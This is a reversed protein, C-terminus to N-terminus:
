GEARIRYGVAPENLILAPRAPDRELKQRLGRIAVRLYDIQSEQAPGWATRLLHAHTLVRGPHKALEALVAYERPALHVARGGRAVSRRFLDITVDGITLPQRDDAPDLELLGDVYRELRTLGAGVASLAATDGGGTRRLADIADHMSRLPPRLDDGISSLLTARVRDRERTRTFERAERELRGRELALALQDLLNDLLPLQARTAAPLGDDRALGMAAIVADGAKVPHFQWETPLARDLGRGARAGSELVAAAAAIDNPALRTAPPASSLTRIAPAGSVLMANCGFLDRLEGTAVDAIEREGTCGLLRRAVGAITANRSAHARALRAQQRVSAALQSTVLAVAFLMVVTVLDNPNDIHFTLRPATFFFNYALAAAAAAFLAPGRGAWAAAALVAPLYILDVAAGGWRPALALGLLTAAAVMLAAEAYGRLPRAPPGAPDSLNSMGALQATAAPADLPVPATMPREEHRAGVMWM